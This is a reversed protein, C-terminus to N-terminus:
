QHLPIPTPAKSSFGFPGFALDPEVIKRSILKLEVLGIRERGDRGKGMAIRVAQIREAIRHSPFREKQESKSVSSSGLLSSTHM